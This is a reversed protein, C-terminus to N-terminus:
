LSKVRINRFKAPSGHDQLALFGHRNRHALAKNDKMDFDHIVTGNLTVKLKTGVVHIETENWEGAPKGANSLPAAGSYISGTGNAHPAVGHDGMVQHEFGIKSFRGTRPIRNFIGSNGGQNIQWELRLIYNDYRDRTYLYGGGRHKWVIEGNEVAWGSPDDGSVVWGDFSKGDFLAIFGAAREAESLVANNPTWPVSEGPHAHAQDMKEFNSDCNCLMFHADDAKVNEPIANLLMYPAITCPKELLAIDGNEPALVTCKGSYKKFETALAGANEGDIYYVIRREKKFAKAATRVAFQRHMADAPADPGLVRLIIVHRREEMVDAMKIVQSVTSKKLESGDTSFGTLDAVIATAGASATRNLIGYIDAKSLDPSLFNPVTLAQLTYPYDDRYVEGRKVHIWFPDEAAFGDYVAGLVVGM